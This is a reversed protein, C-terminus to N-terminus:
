SRAEAVHDALAARMRARGRHLLVRHNADTIELLECAEEASLGAVDRLTVVARQQDPLEDIADLLRARLEASLLSSEPDTELRAPASRWRGDAGFASPDVAPLDGEELASFPVSRADRLGRTRARNVLIRFIWTKLTSRGEFRSLGNVVGLWTEQVVEEVATATHVFSRAVRRLSSDHRALLVEFAGEDGARLRTLLAEDEDM